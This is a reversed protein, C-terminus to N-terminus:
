AVEELGTTKQECEEYAADLEEDDLTGKLTDWDYITVDVDSPAHVSTVMGGEIQIVVRM